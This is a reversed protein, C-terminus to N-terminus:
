MLGQEILEGARLDLAYRVMEVHSGNGKEPVEEVASYRAEVAEWPSEGRIMRGGPPKWINPDNRLCLLVEEHHGCIVAFAGPRFGDEGRGML